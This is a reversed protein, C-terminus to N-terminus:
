EDFGSEVLHALAELAERAEPGSAQVLLTTGPGAALMLLGMISGGAVTAGDGTVTITAQFREATRAFMASARAHLGRTNTITLKQALSKDPGDASSM